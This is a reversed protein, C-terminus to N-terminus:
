GAGGGGCVELGLRQAFQQTQASALGSEQLTAAVADRDERRAAALMREAADVEAELAGLFANIQARQEEPRELARMRRNQSRAIPVARELFLALQLPDRPDQPQQVRGIQGQADSCIEDAQEVFSEEGGGNDGMCGTSALMILLAAAAVLYRM